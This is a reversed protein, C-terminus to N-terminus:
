TFNASPGALGLQHKREDDNLMQSVLGAADGSVARLGTVEVKYERLVDGLQAVVSLPPALLEDARAASVSSKPTPAVLETTGAASQYQDLADGLAMAREDMSDAISARFWVDAAAQVTGATTLFGSELGIWNGKDFSSGAQASTFIGAVGADSLSSLEDHSSVGDSNSDRWVMLSAYASDKSDLVGDANSDLEALVQYGDSAQRGDALLSADGFLEAGSTIRGDGNLDRVLLADAPDVWGVRDALGDANIDFSVGANISLTTVGNGNLDLIIPSRNMSATASTTLQEFKSDTMDM